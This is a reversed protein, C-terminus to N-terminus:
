SVEEPSEYWRIREGVRARLRWRGSKPEDNILRELQAVREDIANSFSALSTDSLRARTRQLNLTTTRWLGWDRACLSAIHAGNIAADDHEAIDASHLLALIDTQDKANLEVIQLKMMLLEAFPLTPYALEARSGIPLTHCMAFEGVFVDLQRGHEDDLFLLRRHGNIANFQEEPRYGQTCLVDSLRRSGGRCCYLDIDQPERAFVADRANRAVVQIATGGLLRVHVGERQGTEVLRVAEDLVNSRDPGVPRPDSASSAPQPERADSM